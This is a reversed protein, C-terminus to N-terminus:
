AAIGRWADAFVSHSSRRAPAGQNRSCWVARAHRELDFFGLRGFMFRWHMAAFAYHGGRQYVFHLWVIGGERTVDVQSTRNVQAGDDAGIACDALEFHDTAM